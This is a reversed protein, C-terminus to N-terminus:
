RFYKQYASLAKDYDELLLHLLGLRILSDADEQSQLEQLAEAVVNKFKDKNFGYLDKFKDLFQRSDVGKINSLIKEPDM